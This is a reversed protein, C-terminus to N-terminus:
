VVGIEWIGLLQAGGAELADRGGRLVYVVVSSGDGGM